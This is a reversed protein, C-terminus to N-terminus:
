KMPLQTAAHGATVNTTSGRFYFRSALHGRVDFITLILTVSTDFVFGRHKRHKPHRPEMVLLYM